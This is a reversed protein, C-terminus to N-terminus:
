RSYAEIKTKESYRMLRSEAARMEIGMESMELLDSATERQERRTDDIVKM